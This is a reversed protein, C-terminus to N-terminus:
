IKSSLADLADQTTNVVRSITDGSRQVIEQVQAISRRGKRRWRSIQGETKGYLQRGIEEGRDSTVLLTVAVGISLGTVFASLTRANM